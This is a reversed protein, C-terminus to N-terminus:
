GQAATETKEPKSAKAANRAAQRDAVFKVRGKPAPAKDSVTISIHSVGKEIQTARGMARPRWRRMNQTPGKDATGLTVYLEDINIGANAQKANNIASLILKKIIPAATKRTFTLLDLARAVKLGRVLGLVTRAKRPGIRTFRATAKSEIAM